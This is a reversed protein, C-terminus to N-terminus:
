HVRAPTFAGEADFTHIMVFFYAVVSEAETEQILEFIFEDERESAATQVYAIQDPNLLLEGLLRKGRM